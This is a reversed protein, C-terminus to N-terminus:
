KEEESEEVQRIKEELNKLELKAADIREQM